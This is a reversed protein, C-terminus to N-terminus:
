HFWIETRETINRIKPPLFITGNIPASAVEIDNAVADREIWLKGHCKLFKIPELVEEENETNEEDKDHM